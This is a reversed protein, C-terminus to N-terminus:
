SAVRSRPSNTAVIATKTLRDLAAARRQPETIIAIRGDDLPHLDVEDGNKLDLARVVEAPIRIAVSNGWTAVQM